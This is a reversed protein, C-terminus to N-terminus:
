NGRRADPCSYWFVFGSSACRGQSGLCVSNSSNNSGSFPKVNPIPVAEDIMVIVAVVDEDVLCRDGPVVRALDFPAHAITLGYPLM